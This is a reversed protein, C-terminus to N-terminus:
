RMWRTRPDIPRQPLENRDTDGFRMIQLATDRRRGFGRGHRENATGRGISPRTVEDAKTSRIVFARLRREAWSVNYNWTHIYPLKWRDWERGNEAAKNAIKVANVWKKPDVAESWPNV